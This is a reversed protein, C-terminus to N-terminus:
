CTGIFTLAAIKVPHFFNIVHIQNARLTIGSTMKSSLREIQKRYCPLYFFFNVDNAPVNLNKKWLALMRNQKTLM